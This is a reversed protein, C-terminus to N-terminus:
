FVGEVDANGAPTEYPTVQKSWDVSNPDVEIGRTVMLTTVSTKNNIDFDNIVGEVYFAFFRNLKNPLKIIIKEGIRIDPRYVLVIQGSLYEHNKQYWRAATKSMRQSLKPFYETDNSAGLAVCDFSQELPKFGFKQISSVNAREDTIDTIAAQGSMIRLTEQTIYSIPYVFYYNFVEKSSKSFNYNIIEENDIFYYPMNTFTKTGTENGNIITGDFPRPRLFFYFYKNETEVNVPNNMDNVFNRGGTDCFFEYFFPTFIKQCISWFNGNESLVDIAMPYDELVDQSFNINFIGNTNNSVLDFVRKNSFTLLSNSNIAGNILGFFNKFLLNFIKLTDKRRINSLSRQLNLNLTKLLQNQYWKNLILKQELFYGGLDRGQVSVRGNPKESFELRETVSDILGFMLPVNANQSNNYLIEVFDMPQLIDSWTKKTGDELLLLNIPLEISFIGATDRILKTTQLRILQNTGEGFVSNKVDDNTITLVTTDTDTNATVNSTYFNIIYRPSKKKYTM